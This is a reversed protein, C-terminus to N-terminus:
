KEKSELAATNIEVKHRARLAALYGQVDEQALLTNLQRLMAQKRAEDLAEGPNLKVLKFLAYGSGPLDVGAYGPLKGADMKFVTAVAAPPIPRPDLRSVSKVAGWALNDEGKRLAALREQGDKAAMAQAEKRKLLTAISGKVTDFAQVNAPRYDVIRAAVLTNPAIEVAETNRKNKVSDESFVAALLKENAYRIQEEQEKSIRKKFNEFEAM